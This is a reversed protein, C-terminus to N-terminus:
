KYQKYDYLLSSKMLLSRGQSCVFIQEIDEIVDQDIELLCELCVVGSQLVEPIVRQWTKDSIRYDIIPKKNCVGCSLTLGDSVAEPWKDDEKIYYKKM